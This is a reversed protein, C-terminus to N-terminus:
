FGMLLNLKKNKWLSFQTSLNKVEENLSVMSGPPTTGKKSLKTVESSLNELNELLKLKQIESVTADQQMICDSKSFGLVSEISWYVMSNAEKEEYIPALKQLFFPRIDRVFQM